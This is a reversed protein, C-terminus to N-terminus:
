GESVYLRGQTGARASARDSRSVQQGHTAVQMATIMILARETMPSSAPLVAAKSDAFAGVGAPLSLVGAGVISKVLNITGTSVSGAPAAVAKPAEPEDVAATAVRVSTRLKPAGALKPALRPRPFSLSSASAALTLALLVARAMTAPAHSHSM